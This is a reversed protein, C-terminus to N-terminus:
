AGVLWPTPSTPRASVQRPATYQRLAITRTRLTLVSIERAVLAIATEELSQQLRVSGAIVMSLARLLDCDAQVSVMGSAQHVSDSFESMLTVDM